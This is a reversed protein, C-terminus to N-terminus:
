ARKLFQNASAVCTIGLVVEGLNSIFIHEGTGAGAAILMIMSGIALWKWGTSRWLAIGIISMVLITSISAIPPAKPGAYTYRLIDSLYVAELKLLVVEGYFGIGILVTTFLCILAHATKGQAWGLGAHRAVGFAFITLLPTAFAHGVFRGVSLFELLDGKGLFAGLAIVLNDYLLGFLVLVLLIWYGRKGPPRTAFAYGILMLLTLSYSFYIATLM